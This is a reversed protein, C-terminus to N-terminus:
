RLPLRSSGPTTDLRDIGFAKLLCLNLIVYYRPSIGEPPLRRRIGSFSISM